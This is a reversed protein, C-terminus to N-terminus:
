AMAACYEDLTKAHEKLEQVWLKENDGSWDLCWIRLVRVIAIQVDGPLTAIRDTEDGNPGVLRSAKRGVDAYGPPPSGFGGEGLTPEPYNGSRTFSLFTNLEASLRLIARDLDNM